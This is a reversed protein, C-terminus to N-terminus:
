WNRDQIKRVVFILLFGLGTGLMAGVLVDGPYHVGLYVRSYIILTAWAFLLATIARTKMLLSFFTALAFSNAAHSSVFGFQGGCKDKVIHVMNALDHCPRLREVGNKILVSLQDSLTILVVVALLIIWVDRKYKKILLYLLWAYFPIWLVKSSIWYMVEDLWPTHAGNVFLFTQVDADNLIQFFANM